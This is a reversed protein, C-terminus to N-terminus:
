ASMYAGKWTPNDRELVRLVQPGAAVTSDSHGVNLIGLIGAQRADGLLNRPVCPFDVERLGRILVDSYTFM